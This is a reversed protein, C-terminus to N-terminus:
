KAVIKGQATDKHMEGEFKYEGPVLAKLFISQESHPAIMKERDLAYSDFEEAENDLNKITIKFQKNAPVILVEPDFKHDKITLIYEDDAASVNGLFLISTVSATILGYTLKLGISNKM